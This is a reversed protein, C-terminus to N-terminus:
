NENLGFPEPESLGALTARAQEVVEEPMDAAFDLAIQEYSCDLRGVMQLARLGDTVKGSRM